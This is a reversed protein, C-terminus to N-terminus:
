LGRMADLALMLMPFRDTVVLHEPHIAQQNKYSYVCMLEDILEDDIEFGLTEEENTCFERLDDFTVTPILIGEHREFGMSEVFQEFKIYFGPLWSMRGVQAHLLRDLMYKDVVLPIEDSM